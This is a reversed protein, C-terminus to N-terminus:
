ESECPTTLMQVNYWFGYYRLCSAIFAILLFSPVINTVANHTQTQVSTSAFTSSTPPLVPCPNFNNRGSDVTMNFETNTTNPTMFGISYITRPSTISPQFGPINDTSFLFLFTTLNGKAIQSVTFNQPAPTICAPACTNYWGAVFVMDVYGTVTPNNFNFNVFTTQVPSCAMACALNRINTYCSTNGYLALLRQMNTIVQQETGGGTAASCCSSASFETCFILNAPAPNPQLPNVCNPVVFSIFFLFLCVIIKM